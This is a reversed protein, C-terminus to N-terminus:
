ITRKLRGNHVCWPKRAVSGRFETAGM